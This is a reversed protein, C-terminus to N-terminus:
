SSEEEGLQLKCGEQLRREVEKLRPLLGLGNAIQIALGPRANAELLLPGEKKDLVVDVGLYGLGVAKSVRRTLDLIQPWYPVQFGVVSEGMDPHTTTVRNRLVARCTVGTDLDIGAGIAGQHLNARGGSLKTPLRLMAMVPEDRFLIIRIDATGQYSIRALIDDPVVRQQFIAADNQGGLSFLGSVISSVHQHIDGLQLGQGNHRLFLAGDRGIVVLIGRGATGRNPKIVFDDRQSLLRPLHRLASHAAITGFIEPTPVDIARCLDRMKLKGDVVPFRHRPNHDLICLTNRSNMGLIGRERLRRWRELWNM